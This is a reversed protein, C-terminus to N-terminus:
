NFTASQLAKNPGGMWSVMGGGAVLYGSDIKEFCHPASAPTAGMCFPEDVAQDLVTFGASDDKMVMTDEGSPVLSDDIWAFSGHSNAVLRTVTCSPIGRIDCSDTYQHLLAGTRLNKSILVVKGRPPYSFGAALVTQNVQTTFALTRFHHNGAFAPKYLFVHRGYRSACAYVRNDFAFVRVQGAQHLTRSHPVACSKASAFATSLGPGAAFGCAVTVGTAIWIPWARGLRRWGIWLVM